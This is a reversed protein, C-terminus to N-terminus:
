FLPNSLFSVDNIRGRRRRTYRRKKREEACRLTRARHIIQRRREKRRQTKALSIFASVEGAAPPALRRPLPQLPPRRAPTRQHLGLEGHHWPRPREATLFLRRRSRPLWPRESSREGM